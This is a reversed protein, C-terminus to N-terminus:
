RKRRPGAPASGRPAAPDLGLESRLDPPLTALGAKRMRGAAMLTRVRARNSEAWNSGGRRPSFRIVYHEGDVRKTLGDVWGYCLAEEVAADYDLSRKGSGKKYAVLWIEGKTRHHRALWTRWARRTEVLLTEGVDM